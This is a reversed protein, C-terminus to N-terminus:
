PIRQLRMGMAVSKPVEHMFTMVLVVLWNLIIIVSSVIRVRHFLRHEFSQARDHHEYDVVVRTSLLPPCLRWVPCTGGLVGSSRM